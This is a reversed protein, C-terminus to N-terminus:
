QAECRRVGGGPLGRWLFQRGADFLQTRDLSDAFVSQGVAQAEDEKGIGGFRGGRDVDGIQDTRAVLVVALGAHGVQEFV